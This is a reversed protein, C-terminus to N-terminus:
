SSSLSTHTLRNFRGIPWLRARVKSLLQLLQLSQGERATAEDEKRVNKKWRLRRPLERSLHTCHQWTVLLLVAGGVLELVRMAELKLTLATVVEAKEGLKLSGGRVRKAWLHRVAWKAEDPNWTTLKVDVRYAQRHLGAV